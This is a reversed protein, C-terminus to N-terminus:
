KLVSFKGAQLTGDPFRFRYSYIGASISSLSFDNAYNEASYIKRGRMDFIEISSNEPLGSIFFNDSAKYITQVFFDPQVSCDNVVVTVSDVSIGACDVPFGPDVNLYYTTTQLPHAYPQAVSASSLGTIPMWSYVASGSAVMGILVSDTRCVVTDIGADAFPLQVVSVDDIYYYSHEWAYTFEIQPHVYLSDSLSDNKFNGITVFQEGGNATFIGSVLTWGSTDTLPNLVGNNAIQPNAAILYNNFSSLATDTFLAGIDNCAYMCNNGLGVYFSVCYRNGQQLTQLLPVHVYYRANLHSPITDWIGTYIGAYSIGSRPAQYGWAGEPVEVEYGQCLSSFYQANGTWDSVYGSFQGASIVCQISDEFGPNPVLNNQSHVEDLFSSIFLVFFFNRM